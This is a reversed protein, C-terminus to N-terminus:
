FQPPFISNFRTKIGFAIKDDEFNFKDQKSSCIRSIAHYKIM